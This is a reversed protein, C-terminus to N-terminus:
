RRIDLVTLRDGRVFDLITRGDFYNIARVANVTYKVQYYGPINPSAAGWGGSGLSSCTIRVVNTGTAMNAKLSIQGTLTPEGIYPSRPTTALPWLQAGAATVNFMKQRNYPVRWYPCFMGFMTRQMYHSAFTSDGPGVKNQVWSSTFMSDRGNALTAGRPNYGPFTTILLRSRQGFVQRQTSNFYLPYDANSLGSDAEADAQLHTFGLSDLAPYVCESAADSALGLEARTFDFMNGMLTTEVRSAGVQAVLAARQQPLTLASGQWREVAFSFQPYQAVYNIDSAYAGISDCRVGWTIRVGLRALSDVGAHFTATDGPSIGGPGYMSGRRCLGSVSINLHRVRAVRGLLDWGTLSDMHALACYVITPDGLDGRFDATANGGTMTLAESFWHCDILRANTSLPLDRQQGLDEGLYLGFSHLPFNTVYGGMSGQFTTSFASDSYCSDRFSPPTSGMINPYRSWNSGHDGILVRYSSDKFTYTNGFGAPNAGLYEYGKWGGCAPQAGPLHPWLLTENGMVVTRGGAYGAAENGPDLAEKGGGGLCGGALGFSAENAHSGIFLNPKTPYYTQGDFGLGPQWTLSCPYCTSIVRSTSGEPFYSQWGCWVTGTYTTGNFTSTEAGKTTFGSGSYPKIWDYGGPNYGDLFGRTVQATATKATQELYVRSGLQVSLPATPWDIVAVRASATAAFLIAIAVAALRRM